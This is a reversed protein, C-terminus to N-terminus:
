YVGADIIGTFALDGNDNFTLADTLGDVSGHRVAVQTKNDQTATVTTGNGSVVENSNVKGSLEYMATDLAQDAGFLTSAGSIYHANKDATYADGNVGDVAKRAAIEATLASASAIDSESVTVATIVGDAEVVGVTVHASNGSVDADLGSVANGVATNIADQVGSLKFGDTGVTLFTESSPAVVGHVVHDTATVGSAFEAELVLESMDVYETKTAGSVDMYKYELNQYHTDGSDTIYKISVIHSDKPIDIVVQKDTSQGNKTEVLTYREKVTAPLDETDKRITYTAADADLAEIRDELKGLTNGSASADGVIAADAAKYETEIEELAGQVTTSSFTSGTVNVYEANITGATASIEGLSESVATIPKGAESIANVSPLPVHTASIVGDAEDVKSVYYGTTATDTYDLGEIAAEAEAKAAAIQNELKGVAANVSDGAAVASADSGKDYGTLDIRSGDTNITIKKTGDTANAVVQVTGGTMEVATVAKGSLTDLDTKSAINKEGLTFTIASNSVDMASAITLHDTEEADGTLKVITKSAAAEAQVADIQNELKSIAQNITDTASVASADSGKAYGNLPAAAVDARTKVAVVGDTEEIAAVYQGAVAADDTKDLAAIATNIANQVGALKFGDAGVTLFANNQGDKESTPDVVGHVQGAANAAVGSVFESEVLFASVDVYTSTTVGSDNVYTYKLFQGQKPPDQTPDENVLEISVLSSDKYIKITSGLQSGDTAILAYEEKVTTSSPTIGSLKIDTYLGNGGDKALVKENDKINVNIDTGSAATTVNISGDASAVTTASKAAKVEDDLEKLVGEVTSATFVDATDTVNVYQADITGASAAVQGKNESVAIIPKGAEHVEALDPLAVRTVAIVGDTETVQSVYEGEVATDTHDLTAIKDDTYKKAGAVSTDASTSESDGSLAIVRKDITNIRETIADMAEKDFDFITVNHGTAETTGGSVYNIAFITKVNDGSGYRNLIIEGDRATLTSASLAAIAAQKDATLATNRLHQISQVTKKIAM